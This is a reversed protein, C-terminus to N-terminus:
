ESSLAKRTTAVMTRITEYPSAGPLLSAINAACRESVPKDAPISFERLGNKRVVFANGELKITRDSDAIQKQIEHILSSKAQKGTLERVFEFAKVNRDVEPESLIRRADRKKLAFHMDSVGDVSILDALTEDLYNNRSRLYEVLERVSLQRAFASSPRTLNYVIDIEKLKTM